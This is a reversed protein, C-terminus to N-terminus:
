APVAQKARLHSLIEPNQTRWATVALEAIRGRAALEVGNAAAFERVAKREDPTLGSGGTTATSAKTSRGRKASGARRANSVFEGLMGKLTAHEDETLDIEYDVGDLGFDVKHADPTGSMDSAIEVIVKQAM